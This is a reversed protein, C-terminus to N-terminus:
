KAVITKIDNLSEYYKKKVKIIIIVCKLSYYLISLIIGFVIVKYFNGYYLSYAPILFLTFLSIVLLEISHLIIENKNCRYSIEFMIITGLILVINLVKLIIFYTDTQINSEGIQLLILYIIIVILIIVNTRCKKFIKNKEEEPLKKKSEIEEELKTLNRKIENEQRKM